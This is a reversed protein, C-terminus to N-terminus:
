LSGPRSPGEAPQESARPPLQHGTLQALKKMGGSLNETHCFFVGKEAHVSFSPHRDPGGHSPLPCPCTGKAGHWVIPGCVSELWDRWM